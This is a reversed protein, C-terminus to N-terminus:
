EGVDKQAVNFTAVVLQLPTEEEEYFRYPGAVTWPSPYFKSLFGSLKEQRYGSFTAVAVSQRAHGEAVLHYLRDLQQPWATQKNADAGSVFCKLEFVVNDKESEVVLDAKGKLQPYRYDFGLREFLGSKCIMTALEVRFWSEFSSGFGCAIRGSPCGQVHKLFQNAFEAADLM